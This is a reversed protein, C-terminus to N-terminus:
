LQNCPILVPCRCHTWKDEVGQENSALNDAGPQLSGPWVYVYSRPTNTTVADIRMSLSVCSPRFRASPFFIRSVMMFERQRQEVRPGRPRPGRARAGTQGITLGGQVEYVFGRADFADM